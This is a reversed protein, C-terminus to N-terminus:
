KDLKLMIGGFKGLKILRSEIDDGENIKFLITAPHFRFKKEQGGFNLFISIKENGLNRTYGLVTDPLNEILELSGEQLSKEERRIKLLARVMNLLSAKEKTAKESNVEHYNEHVPLWTKEASSFGANKTGDWQMPTRVEDRNITLGIMDFVFPPIVKFKHPIPDLATACPQKLNTMGIEEGYYMCPVGRVTLQLMHLLKAKQQDEGLRNISRRRDHNGFVYVPMFPHPLNEEIDRILKRFYSASFKFTLM